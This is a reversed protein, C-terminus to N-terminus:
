SKPDMALGLAVVIWSEHLCFFLLFFDGFYCFFGFLLLASHQALQV